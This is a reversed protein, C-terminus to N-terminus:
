FGYGKPHCMGIYSIYPLAGGGRHRTARFIDAKTKTDIFCIDKVNKWMKRLDRKKRAGAPYYPCKPRTVSHGKHYMNLTEFAPLMKQPKLSIHNFDMKDTETTSIGTEEM